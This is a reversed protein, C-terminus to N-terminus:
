NRFLELGEGRLSQGKTVKSGKAIKGKDNVLGAVGEGSFRILGRHNGNKNGKSALSHM